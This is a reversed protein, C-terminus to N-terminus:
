VVETHGDPNALHVWLSTPATFFDSQIGASSPIKCWMNWIAWDLIFLLCARIFQLLDKSSKLYYLKYNNSHGEINLIMYKPASGAIQAYELINKNCLYM